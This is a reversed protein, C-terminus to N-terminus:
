DIHYNEYFEWYGNYLKYFQYDRAKTRKANEEAFTRADLMSSFYEEKIKNNEKWMLKYEKVM